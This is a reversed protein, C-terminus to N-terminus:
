PVAERSASVASRSSTVSPAHFSRASPSTRYDFLRKVPAGEDPLMVAHVDFADDGVECHCIEASADVFVSRALAASVGVAIMHASATHHRQWRRIM